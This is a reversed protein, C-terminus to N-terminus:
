TAWHSPNILDNDSSQLEQPVEPVPGVAAQLLEKLQELSDVGIIIKNIERFSIAYRICAQLPTLGTHQLWGEYKSWVPSWRDFKKPRNNSKMLLLGQLFVSRVHLEMGGGSFRSLWGTNVLRQDMLNFPAQVLDLQYRSCL